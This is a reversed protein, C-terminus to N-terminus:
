YAVSEPLKQTSVVPNIIQGMTKEFVYVEDHYVKKAGNWPLGDPFNAGGAVILRDRIIGTVPGALGPQERVGDESPLEAAVSWEIKEITEQKYIVRNGVCNTELM